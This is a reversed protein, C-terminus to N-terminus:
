TLMPPQSTPQGGHETSKKLWNYIYIYIYIYIYHFIYISVYISVNIYQYFSISSMSPEPWHGVPKRISAGMTTPGMGCIGGICGREKGKGESRRIRRERIEWGHGRGAAESQVQGRM